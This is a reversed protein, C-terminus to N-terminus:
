YTGPVRPDPPRPPEAATSEGPPLLSVEETTVIQVVIGVIALALWVVTWLLSESLAADVGGYGLDELEVQGLLLLVGGVAAAAGWLATIAVIIMRPLRLVVAVIAFAVAVALGVLLNVLGIDIGLAPLIAYGLAYGMAAIVFVVGVWWWLFALGAFLIGVVIGVVIGLVDRMFGTGLIAVVVNAGVVFGAVFGWLPLLLQFIRFGYFAALLGVGIVFIATILEM